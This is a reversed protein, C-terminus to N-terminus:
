STKMGKHLVNQVSEPAFVPAGAVRAVSTLLLAFTDLKVNERTLGELM